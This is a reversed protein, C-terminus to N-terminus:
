QDSSMDDQKKMGSQNKSGDADATGTADEANYKSKKAEEHNEGGQKGSKAHDDMDQEGVDKNENGHHSALVTASGLAIAPAVLAYFALARLKKM